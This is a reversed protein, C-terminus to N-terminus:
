RLNLDMTLYGVGFPYEYSLTESKYKTEGLVGLLLLISSYLCEEVENLLNTDFNLIDQNKNKELLEIVLKDYELGKKSYGGPADETLNHSLEGTAIVAIHKNSNNIVKRIAKGFNYHEKNSLSSYSIPVISIEQGQNTLNSLPVTFNYKLDEDTSLIVPFKTETAERIKYGLELDNKFEFKTEMDGFKEFQAILKPSHNIVFTPEIDEHPSSFIIITDVNRHYLDNKIEQFAKQTKKLKEFNDQGITKLLLPSHPTIAASVLSM